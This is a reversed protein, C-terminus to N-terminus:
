GGDKLDCGQSLNKCMCDTPALSPAEIMLTNAMTAWARTVPYPQKQPYKEFAVHGDMYLINAGGPLHNFYTPDSSIHDFMVPIETDAVNGSWPANIDTILVRSVGFRLPWINASHGTEDFFEFHPPSPHEADAAKMAAQTFADYFDRSFDLTADDNVWSTRFLWPVYQYSLDDIRCPVVSVHSGVLAPQDQESWHGGYYEEKARFDSPCILIRTDTLYEPYMASGRMMLPPMYGTLCGPAGMEQIPPFTGDSEDAYMLISMGLQRLNNACSARRAAERARALSPLLMSSLIGIIAVVVLLEVLTFGHRRM